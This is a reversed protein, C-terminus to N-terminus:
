PALHIIEVADIDAGETVTEGPCPYLEGDEVRFYRAEDLGTEALDFDCFNSFEGPVDFGCPKEARVLVFPGDPQGGAYLTVAEGSVSQWVRVDVGPDNVACSQMDVTVHGGNGLSMFGRFSDPGVGGANPRGLVQNPDNYHNQNLSCEPVSWEVVSKAYPGRGPLCVVALSQLTATESVVSGAAGSATVEWAVLGGRPLPEPLTVSTSGSGAPVTITQLERDVRAMRVRFTYTGQGLDFGQANRVTLTPADSQAQSGSPPSMITPTAPLTAPPPTPPATVNDACAALAALSALVLSRTELRM